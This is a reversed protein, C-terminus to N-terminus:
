REHSKAEELPPGLQVSYKCHEDGELLCTVREVPVNLARAILTQDITCIEPHSQGVRYYPCSLERVIVMDGRQEIEVEFGEETLFAKLRALRQELTLGELQAAFQDALTAAVSSLLQQVKM